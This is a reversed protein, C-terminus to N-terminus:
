VGIYEFSVRKDKHKIWMIQAPNEDYGAEDSYAERNQTAKPAVILYTKGHQSVKASHWHGMVIHKTTGLRLRVRDATRAFPKDGHLYISDNTEVIGKNSGWFKIEKFKSILSERIIYGVDNRPFQGRSTGHLRIQGHNSEPVFAVEVNSAGVIGIVAEIFGAYLATIGNVQNITNEEQHKDLSSLHLEGEIDDGLFVLRVKFVLSAKKLETLRSLQNGFLAKIAKEDRKGSYHMDSIVIDTRETTAKNAKTSIFANKVKRGAELINELMSKAELAKSQTRLAKHMAASKRNIEKEKLLLDVEKQELQKQTM